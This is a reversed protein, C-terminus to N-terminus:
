KGRQLRMEKWQLFGYIGMLIIGIGAAAWACREVIVENEYGLVSILLSIGLIVVQTGTTLILHNEQTLNGRFARVLGVILIVFGICALIAGKDLLRNAIDQANAEATKLIYYILMISLALVLSALGAALISVKMNGGKDLVFSIPWTFFDYVIPM